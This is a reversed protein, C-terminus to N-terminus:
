LLSSAKQNLELAQDKIKKIKLEFSFKDVISEDSKMQYRTVDEITANQNTQLLFEVIKEQVTM